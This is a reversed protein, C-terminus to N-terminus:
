NMKMCNNQFWLTLSEVAGKIENIVELKSSDGM